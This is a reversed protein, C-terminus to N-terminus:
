EVLAYFEEESTIRSLPDNESATSSGTERRPAKAAAQPIGGTSPSGQASGSDRQNAVYATTGIAGLALVIASILTVKTKLLITLTGLASPIALGKSAALELVHPSVSAGGSTAANLVSAHLASPLAAAKAESAILATLAGVSAFEVGRRTLTKKLAERARSLRTRLTTPHLDLRASIERLSAGELHFLVLPQRYQDPLREIAADLERRLGAGLTADPTVDTSENMAAQERRQRSHRSQRANLALRRSVTHLWGALSPQGALKAAERALVMFVAQTVDQADHHNSLVRMSVAHVMPGHRKVLTDFASHDGSASFERLLDADTKDEPQHVESSVV